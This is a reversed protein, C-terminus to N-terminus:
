GEERYFRYLRDAEEALEAVTNERDMLVAAMSSVAEAEKIGKEYMAGRVTVFVGDLQSALANARVALIDGSADQAFFLLASM